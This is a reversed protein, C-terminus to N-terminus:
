GKKIVSPNYSETLDNLLKATQSQIFSPAGVFSNATNIVTNIREQNKNMEAEDKFNRAEIIPGKKNIPAADIYKKFSVLDAKAMLTAMEVMSNQIKGAKVASGIYSNIEDNIVKEATDSIVKNMRINDEVVKDYAKKLDDYKKTLDDTVVGPMHPEGPFHDMSPNCDEKDTSTDDDDDDNKAKDSIPKLLATMINMVDDESANDSVKGGADNLVKIFDKNMSFKTKKNVNITNLYQVSKKEIKNLIEAKTKANVKKSSKIEDILGLQLAESAKIWSTDSLLQEVKYETLGSRNSIMTILTKRIEDLGKDESGDSTFPNHLMLRAYDYMVRKTGAQSFCGAISAAIGGNLTILNIGYKEQVELMACNMMYGEFVEGGESDIQVTITKKGMECLTYLEHAFQSGSIGDGGIKGNILIDPEESNPNPCYIFDIM